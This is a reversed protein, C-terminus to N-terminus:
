TILAGAFPADITQVSAAPTLQLTGTFTCHSPTDTRGCGSAVRSPAGNVVGKVVLPLALTLVITVPTPACVKPTEPSKPALPVM